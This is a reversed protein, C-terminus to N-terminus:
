LVPPKVAVTSISSRGSSNLVIAEVTATNKEEQVTIPLLGTSGPFQEQEDLQHSDVEQCKGLSINSFALLYRSNM